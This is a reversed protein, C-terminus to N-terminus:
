REWMEGLVRAAPALLQLCIDAPSMGEDNIALVQATVISADHSLLLRVLETVDPADSTPARTPVRRKAKPQRALVLRPVIQSEVVRILRQLSTGERRPAEEIHGGEDPLAPVGDWCADPRESVLKETRM